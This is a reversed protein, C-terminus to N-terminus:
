QTHTHIHLCDVDVERNFQDPEDLSMSDDDESVYQHDEKLGARPILVVTLVTLQALTIETTM